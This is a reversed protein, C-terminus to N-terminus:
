ESDLEAFRGTRRTEETWRSYLRTDTPRLVEIDCALAELCELQRLAASSQFGCVVLKLRSGELADCVFSWLDDQWRAVDPKSFDVSGQTLLPRLRGPAQSELSLAESVAFCIGVRLISSPDGPKWIVAATHTTRGPSFWSARSNETLWVTRISGPMLGDDNPHPVGTHIAATVTGM